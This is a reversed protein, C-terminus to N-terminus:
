LTKRGTIVFQEALFRLLGSRHSLGLAFALRQSFWAPIILHTGGIGISDADSLGLERCTKETPQIHNYIAYPALRRYRILNYVVYPIALLWRSLANDFDVILIGDKKLVRLMEMVLRKQDRHPFLHLFRTSLVGEFVCDPFPLRFADAEVFAGKGKCRQRSQVMMAPTLDCAVFRFGHRALLSTVHGTGCAVELIRSQSPLRDLLEEIVHLHLRNFLEGYRTGYRSTHYRMSEETYFLKLRSSLNETM